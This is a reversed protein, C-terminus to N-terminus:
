SFSAGPVCFRSFLFFSQSYDNGPRERMHPVAGVAQNAAAPAVCSTAHQPKQHSENARSAVKRAPSHRPHSPAPAVAHIRDQRAIHRSPHSRNPTLGRTELIPTSHMSSCTELHLRQHLHTTLVRKRPSSRTGGRVREGPERWLVLNRVRSRGNGVIPWFSPRM